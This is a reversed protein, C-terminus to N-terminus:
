NENQIIFKKRGFARRRARRTKSRLTRIIWWCGLCSPFCLCLTSFSAYVLYRIGGLTNIELKLEFIKADKKQVDILDHELDAIKQSKEEMTNYLERLQKESLNVSDKVKERLANREHTIEKISKESEKTVQLSEEAFIACRLLNLFRRGALM